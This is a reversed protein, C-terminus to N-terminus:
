SVIDPARAIEDLVGADTERLAAAALADRAALHDKSYRGLAWAAHGRVLPSKHHELAEALPAIATPEKCNGLAVAANRALQERSVRRMASKKILRKHERNRIALLKVLDLSTFRPRMEPALPREQKSANFPCVEQCIDCGYVWTGILPRLERPIAGRLEITLYSICRRADLVQADIIAGTPCAEICKTCSGCRSREPTSPALELDVLLEGLVVYSGVGPVISMTSKAIFGVGAREAAERELIPASDVCPRALVPRSTLTGLKDALARLKEKMVAHYDGGLAYRAVRGHMAPAEPVDRTYPLAVVILTKAEALLTTPEARGGHEAMYAMEGHRGRALWDALADAGRAFPEVPSFGVRVFGLELAADRVQDALSM